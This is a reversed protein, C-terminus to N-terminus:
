PPIRALAAVVAAERRTAYPAGVGRRMWDRWIALSQEYCFRAERRASRALYVRGMTELVDARDLQHYLSSPARQLLRDAAALAKALADDARRQEGAAALASGLLAYSRSLPRLNWIRDPSTAAIGEFVAVSRTLHHAAEDNRQLRHLGEGTGLYARAVAYRYEINPPDMAHLDESIALAQMYYDLGRAPVTDVYMMGLRRYCNAVNRRANVNEPDASALEQAIALAKEYEALAATRNDFNADDIAGLLDGRSTYLSILNYRHEPKADRRSALENSVALAKDLHIRAASLQGNREESTAVHQYSERLGITAEATPAAAVWKQAVDLAKRYFALESACAGRQYEGDALRHYLQV